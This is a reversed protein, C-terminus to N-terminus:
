AAGGLLGPDVDNLARRITAILRGPDHRLPHGGPLPFLRARSGALLPCVSDTEEVGYICILPAWDIARLGAAPNADAAGHYRWESPDARFYASTGPVVLVIAAVHRRLAPPLAPLASGVIDSGFSQGVLIVRAAGTRTMAAAIANAVMHNVQSLSHQHTFLTPSSYAFVPLGAAALAPPVDSSMGFRMGMDGSFFVVATGRGARDPGYRYLPDANFFGAALAFGLLILLAASLGGGSWLLLRRASRARPFATNAM